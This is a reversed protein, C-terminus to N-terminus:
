AGRRYLVVQTGCKAIEALVFCLLIANGVVAVSPPALGAEAAEPVSALGGWALYGIAATAVSGALVFYASRFSRLDILVDREDAQEPKRFIALGIEIAVLAIVQLIVLGILLGIQDAGQVAGSATSWFFVGYIVVTSALSLWINVERGSMGVRESKM